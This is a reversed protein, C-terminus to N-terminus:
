ARGLAIDIGDLILSLARDGVHGVCESLVDRDVAIIQSVDAVSDGPLGTQSAALAVNGPAAVLRLNSTLAVVIVTAIRSANFADGQVIVVPRRSGPGSGVPDGLSAWLVDGQRIVV